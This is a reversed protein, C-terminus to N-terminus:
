DMVKAQILIVEINGTYVGTKVGMPVTAKVQVFEYSGAEIKKEQYDVFQKMDGLPIIRVLVPFDNTNNVLYDRSAGGGPPVVGFIFGSNNVDIGVYDNVEIRAFYVHREVVKDQYFYFFLTTLFSIFSVLLAIFVIISLRRNFAM